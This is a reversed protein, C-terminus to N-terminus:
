LGPKGSKEPATAPAAVPAKRANPCDKVTHSKKKVVPKYALASTASTASVPAQTVSLPTTDSPKPSRSRKRPEDNRTRDIDSQDRRTQDSSDQHHNTDHQRQSHQIHAQHRQRRTFGDSLGPERQDAFDSFRNDLPSSITPSGPAWDLVSSLGNMEYIAVM